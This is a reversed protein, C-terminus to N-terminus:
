PDFRFLRGAGTDAVWISGDHITIGNPNGGLKAQFVVRSIKPNVREVVGGDYSTLWVADRTILIRAARSTAIEAEVRGTDVDLRYLTRPGGVWLSGFGAAVPPGEDSGGPHPVSRSVTLAATDVRLLEGTSYLAAWLPSGSGPFAAGALTLTAVKGSKPDVRALGEDVALWVSDGVIQPGCPGHLGSVETITQQTKPDIGLLTGADLDAIWIRDFGSVVDCPRRVSVTATTAGTKPDVAYVRNTQAHDEAWIVDGAAHIGSPYFSVDFMAAVGPPLPPTPTPTPPRTPSPAVTPSATELTSSPQSTVASGSGAGSPQDAAQPQSCGSLLLAVVLTSAGASRTLRTARPVRDGTDM